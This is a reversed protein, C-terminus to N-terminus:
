FNYSIKFRATHKVQVAIKYINSNTTNLRAPKTQEVGVGTRRQCPMPSEQQLGELMPEILTIPVSISCNLGLSVNKSTFPPPATVM